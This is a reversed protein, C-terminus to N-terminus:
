FNKLSARAFAPAQGRLAQGRAPPPSTRTFSPSRPPPSCCLFIPRQLSKHSFRSSSTFYAAFLSVVAPFDPMMLLLLHVESKRYNMTRHIKQRVPPKLKESCLTNEPNEAGKYGGKKRQTFASVPENVAGCAYGFFEADRDNPRRCSSAFFDFIM